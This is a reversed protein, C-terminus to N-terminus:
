ETAKCIPDFALKSGILGEIYKNEPSKSRDAAPCTHDSKTGAQYTHHEAVAQEVIWARVVRGMM